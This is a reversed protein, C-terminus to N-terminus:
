HIFQASGLAGVAITLALLSQWRLSWWFSVIALCFAGLALAWRLSRQWSMFNLTVFLEALFGNASGSQIWSYGRTLWSVALVSLHCMILVILSARSQPHQSRESVFWAVLIIALSSLSLTGLNLVLEFLLSNIM